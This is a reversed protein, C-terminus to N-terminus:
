PAADTAATGHRVGRRALIVGLGMFGVVGAVLKVEFGVKSTVDAAPIFALAISLAVSGLGLWGALASGV